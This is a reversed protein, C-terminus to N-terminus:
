VGGAEAQELGSQQYVGMVNGGPDRFLFYVERSDPNVPQVIEGGAAVVAEAVTAASGVMIYVTLSGESLPRRGPVWTGSVEHVSDDFATSGDGRRRVDWGFVQQYFRASREVDDTPIEIYCIKGTRYTPATL